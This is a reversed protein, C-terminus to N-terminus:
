NVVRHVWKSQIRAEDEEDTRTLLIHPTAPLHDTGTGCISEVLESSVDYLLVRKLHTQHKWGHPLRRLEKCRLATLVELALMVGNAIAIEKLESLGRLGLHQLKEFGAVFCLREGVFANEVLNLKLLNPLAQIHSITHEGLESGQLSLSKLNLLTNFWRPVQGLKGVLFLKELYPPASPLADLKLAFQPLSGLQLYHLHQM